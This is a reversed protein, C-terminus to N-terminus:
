GAGRGVGLIRLTEDLDGEEEAALMIGYALGLLEAHIRKAWESVQPDKNGVQGLRLFAVLTAVSRLILAAYRPGKRPLDVMVRAVIAELLSAARDPTLM